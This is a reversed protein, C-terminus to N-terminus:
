TGAISKRSTKTEVSNEAAPKGCIFHFSFFFDIEVDSPVFLFPKGAKGEKKKKFYWPFVSKVRHIRILLIQVQIEKGQRIHVHKGM